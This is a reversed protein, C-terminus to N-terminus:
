KTVGCKKKLLKIADMLRKDVSERKSEPLFSIWNRASRLNDIIKEEETKLEKGCQNCFRSEPPNVHGCECTIRKSKSKSKPKSSDDTKNASIRRGRLEVNMEHLIDYLTQESKIGYSEMIDKNKIGCEYMRVMDQKQEQTFNYKRKGAM